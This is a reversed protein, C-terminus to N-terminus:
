TDCLFTTTDINTIGYWLQYFVIYLRPVCSTTPELGVHEMVKFVQYSL